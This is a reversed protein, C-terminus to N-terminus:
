VVSGGYRCLVRQCNNVYFYEADGKFAMLMGELVSVDENTVRGWESDFSLITSFKELPNDLLNVPVYDEDRM